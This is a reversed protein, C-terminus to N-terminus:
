GRPLRRLLRNRDVGASRAAVLLRLHSIEMERKMVFAALPAPGFIQFSGIDLMELMIRDSEREYEVFSGLNLADELYSSLKELGPNEALLHSLQGTQYADAIESPSHFGGELLLKEVTDRPLKEQKCRGAILFNKQEIGTRVYRRFGRGLDPLEELEVRAALEDMRYDIEKISPTDLELLGELTERFLTPLEERSEADHIAAVLLDTDLLGNREIEVNQGTGAIHSKWLYRANRVDRRHLLGRVLRADESLEILEQESSSMAKEFCDDLEHGQMFGGYWTDTLLRLTEELDRASLLMQWMRTSLLTMEEGSIRGNAYVFEKKM